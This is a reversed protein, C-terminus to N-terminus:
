KMWRGKEIMRGKKERKIRFYFISGNHIMKANHLRESLAYRRHVKLLSLFQAVM